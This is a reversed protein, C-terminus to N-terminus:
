SSGPIGFRSVSLPCRLFAAPFRVVVDGGQPLGIQLAVAGPAQNNTCASSSAVYLQAAQGSAIPGASGPDGFYTGRHSRLPKGHVALRRPYGSLTCAAKGVNALAVPLVVNGLAVRAPLLRARLGAARCPKPAEVTPQWASANTFDYASNHTLRRPGSGDISMVYIEWPGACNPSGGADRNSTFAIRKGDPSWAPFEDCANSPALKRQGSGDASMLYIQM